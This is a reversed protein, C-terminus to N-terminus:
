NFNPIDKRLYITLNLDAHRSREYRRTIKNQMTELKHLWLIYRLRKILPNKGQYSPFQYSFSETFPEEKYSNIESYNKEIYPLIRPGYFNLRQLLIQEPKYKELINIFYTQEANSIFKRKQGILALEPPVRIKTYFAFIPRDTIIWHTLPKYKLLLNNITECQQITTENKVNRINAALKFPLRLVTTTILILMLWRFAGKKFINITFLNSFYIGALWSLPISFLLYYHPWIPRHFAYIISVSILWFLPLFLQKEKQKILLVVSILALLAVDLDIVIMKWINSFGSKPLILKTLHPKILSRIYLPPNSHFFIITIVLYILLAASAWLFINLLSNHPNTKKARLKEAQIIELPILPILFLTFLKTHLSLAIFIASLFLYRKLYLKKYLTICYISLMAFSLSVTGIMVSTSLPIYLSSTLLFIAGIFACFSGWWTKITYYFTLILLLSFILILIRGQYISSGFLKFWFSLIVTYLPPQDSYIQSYLSFGNLYLSSKILEFGEDPDYELTEKLSPSTTFFVIASIILLLIILIDKSKNLFFLNRM